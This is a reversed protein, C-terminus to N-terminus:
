FLFAAIPMGKESLLGPFALSFLVASLVILGTDIFFTSGSAEREKASALIVEKVAM